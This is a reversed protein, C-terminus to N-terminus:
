TCRQHARHSRHRSRCRGLRRWGRSGQSGQRHTVPARPILPLQSWSLLRGRLDATNLGAFAQGWCSSWLRLGLALEPPVSRTCWARLRWATPRRHRRVGQLDAEAARLRAHQGGPRLARLRLHLPLRTRHGAVYGGRPFPNAGNGRCVGRRPPSHVRHVPDRARNGRQAPPRRLGAQVQLHTTLVQGSLARLVSRSSRLARRSRTSCIWGSVEDRLQGSSGCCGGVVGVCRRDDRM